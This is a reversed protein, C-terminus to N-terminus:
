IFSFHKTETDPMMLGMLRLFMLHDFPDKHYFNKIVILGHKIDVLSEELVLFINLKWMSELQM